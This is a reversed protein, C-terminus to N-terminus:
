GAATPNLSVTTDLRTGLRTDGEDAVGRTVLGGGIVPHASWPDASSVEGLDNGLYDTLPNSAIRCWIM